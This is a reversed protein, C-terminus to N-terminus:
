PYYDTLLHNIMQCISSKITSPGVFGPSFVVMFGAMFIVGGWGEKDEYICYSVNKHEYKEIESTM